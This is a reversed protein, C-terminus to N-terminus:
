KTVIFELEATTSNGATDQVTVQLSHKGAVSEWSFSRIAEGTEALQRDDMVWTIKAVQVNEAVEIQFFISQQNALSIEAGPTPYLISVVPATNDVSIQIVTTELQQDKFVKVLRMAYLGDRTTKWTGLVSDTLPKTGSGIELWADPNLGEGVQLSYSQFDDGSVTGTVEIEGHIFAFMTPSTIRLEANEPPTRITDYEVPPQPLGVGAAWPKADEPVVFFLQEQRLELPTFVTALRGTERNIEVNQYLPDYETPEMGVLFVEDVVKPCIATALKGSPDCVDLQVVGAPATWQAPAEEQSSYQMLANWIGASVKYDLPVTSTDSSPYGVWSAVLYQKTYGVTWVEDGSKTSGLKIGAPKGIEMLNPHGYKERRSMDDSLMNHILYAISASLVSQKAPAAPAYIIRKDATEIRSIAAAEVFSGHDAQKGYYNGLNAFNTYIYAAELINLSKGELIIQADQLASAINSLGLPETSKWVTSAGITNVLQIIPTNYDNNLATRLRMPGQYLSYDLEEYTDASSMMPIDWVLTAPSMGRSIFAVAAIPTLLSGAQHTQLTTEKGANDMDGVLALIDGTNNELIVVSGLVDAPQALIASPLPSLLSAAECHLGAYGPYYDGVNGLKQVQLLLVCEAQTQLDSDMTTIIKLGGREINQKGLIEEAQKRVVEIFAPHVLTPNSSDQAFALSTSVVEGYESKSIFGNKALNAALIEHYELAASLADIPNLAPAMHVSTLLISETLTLNQASKGLYLQSASDAGYALHGFYASNLYWELVQVRGYQSVLQGALLRMRISRNLSQPETELLLSDVLKEAITVPLPNNWEKISYGPSSWYNPQLSAIMIRILQTSFHEPQDPDIALYRRTIGPNELSAIVQEGSRDYIQTPQLFLGNAPNLLAPIQELSPLDRTLQTFVYAGTFITIVLALSLTLAFGKGLNFLVRQFIQKRQQTEKRNRRILIIQRISRM